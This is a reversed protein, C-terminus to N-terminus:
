SGLEYGFVHVSRFCALGGLDSSYRPDTEGNYFISLECMVHGYQKSYNVSVSTDLDPTNFIEDIPQQANWDKQWGSELLYTELQKSNQRWKEIFAKNVSSTQQNVSASKNCSIDIGFGKYGSTNCVAIERNQNNFTLGAKKATPTIQLLSEEYAKTVSGKYFQSIVGAMVNERLPGRFLFLLLIMLIGSGGAILIKRKNKPM